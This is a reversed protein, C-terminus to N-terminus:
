LFIKEKKRSQNISQNIQHHTDDNANADRVGCPAPGTSLLFCQRADSTKGPRHVGDIKM